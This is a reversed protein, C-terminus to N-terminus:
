SCPLRPHPHPDAGPLGAFAALPRVRGALADREPGSRLTFNVPTVACVAAGDRGLDFVGLDAGAALVRRAPVRAAVAREATRARPRRGRRAVAARRPDADLPAVAGGTLPRPARPTQRRQTLAALLLRDASVGDRRGFALVLGMLGLPAASIAFVILATPRDHDV